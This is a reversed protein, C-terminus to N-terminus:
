KKFKNKKNTRLEKIKESNIVIPEEMSKISKKFQHLRVEFGYIFYSFDGGYYVAVPMYKSIFKVHRLYM